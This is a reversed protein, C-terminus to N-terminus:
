PIFANSYADELQLPAELLGMEILVDQMNSWSEPDSYGLRDARWFAISEELIGRQLTEDANELGEVYAKAIEYAEVPNKITWYLGRITAGVMTRVLEPNERLTEENTILGNGALHVFDAVRIVEVPFGQAALQLPENNAYIVVAQDLGEYLAEVQNYGISDLTVQDESLGAASLLARFGIYSAGFLGPIGIKKGVLDAPQDIGSGEPAAVAVPYDQWWAMVYVVPLGQARALLVQEGSVIAFPIEGAGVLQVAETEPIHNFTVNLGYDRYFGREVTVYLPAFQVDPRYGMSLRITEPTPQTPATESVTGSCGTLILGLCALILLLRNNMSDHEKLEIHRVV